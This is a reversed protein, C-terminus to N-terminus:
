YNVEPVRCVEIRASRIFHCKTRNSAARRGFSLIPKLAQSIVRCRSGLLKLWARDRRRETLAGVTPCNIHAFNPANRIYISTVICWLLAKLEDAVRTVAMALRVAATQVEAATNFRGFGIRVSCAADIESMGLALLVHSPQLVGASCAANTSLAIDPQLAGVLRDADCGPFTISLNGALRRNRDGNVRADPCRALLIELFLSRLAVAAQSDKELENRAIASAAGFAVCLPPSITGSRLGREQGGGWFVAEPTVPSEESVYLAGVGIPAYIKHGSLSMLDIGSAKVDIPIKGLAQAADAHFVINHSRCITAIEEIPQLVGIENNATMVSVLCTEQSIAARLTAVDLLGSADVPLVNVRFGNRALHRATELVCKHETACTIIHNGRRNLSRAVGQLALNNAETAGSTFIIEQSRAGILAAIKERADEVARAAQRGVFHESHPNGVTSAELFPLLADRVRPDTPTTAQNDLYIFDSVTIKLTSPWSNTVHPV